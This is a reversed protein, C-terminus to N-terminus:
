DGKKQIGIMNEIQECTNQVNSAGIRTAKEPTDTVIKRTCDPAKCMYGGLADFLKALNPTDPDKPLLQKKGSESCKAVEEMCVREMEDAIEGPQKGELAKEFVAKREPKPKPEAERDEESICMNSTLACSMYDQCSTNLSKIADNVLDTVKKDDLCKPDVATIEATRSKSNTDFALDRQANLLATTEPNVRANPELAAVSKDVCKTAQAKTAEIWAKDRAVPDPNKLVERLAAETEAATEETYVEESISIVFM